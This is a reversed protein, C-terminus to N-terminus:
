RLQLASVKCHLLVRPRARQEIRPGRGRRSQAHQLHYFFLGPWKQKGSERIENNGFIFPCRCEHLTKREEKKFLQSLWERPFFNFFLPFFLRFCRLASLPVTM